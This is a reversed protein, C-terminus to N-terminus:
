YPNSWIIRESDRLEALVDADTMETVMGCSM